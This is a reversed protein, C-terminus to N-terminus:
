CLAGEPVCAFGGWCLQCEEGDDCGAVRCDDPLPDCTCTAESWEGRRCPAGSPLRGSGPCEPTCVVGTAPCEPRACPGDSAVDTGAARANCANSYTHGDCGCVPDFHRNCVTPREVCSGTGDAIGCVGGLSEDYDCYEDAECRLGAIGGCTRAPPEACSCIECGDDGVAFGDPCFLECLVPPCEPPEACRCTPCGDDGTEFGYPCFLACLVEPCGRPECTPPACCGPEDPLCYHLCVGPVCESGPPCTADDGVTCEGAPQCSAPPGAVCAHGHPCDADAACEDGCDPDPRPCFLDCEGDGYWDFVECLDFPWDAKNMARADDKSAVETPAPDTATCATALLALWCFLIRVSM